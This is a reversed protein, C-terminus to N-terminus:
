LSVDGSPCWVPDTSSTSSSCQETLHQSFQSNVLKEVKFIQIQWNNLMFLYSFLCNWTSLHKDTNKLTNSKKRVAAWERRGCYSKKEGKIGKTSGTSVSTGRWRCVTSHAHIHTLSHSPKPKYAFYALPYTTWFMGRLSPPRQQRNGRYGLLSCLSPPASPALQQAETEVRCYFFAEKKKEKKGWFYSAASCVHNVASTVM